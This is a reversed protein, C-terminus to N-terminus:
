PALPSTPLPKIGLLLVQLEVEFVAYRVLLNAHIGHYVMSSKKKLRYEPDGWELPRTQLNAVITKLAEAYETAIGLEVANRGMERLQRTVAPLQTLQYSPHDNQAM